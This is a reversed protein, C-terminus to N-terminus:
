LALCGERAPSGLLLNVAQFELGLSELLVVFAIQFWRRMTSRLKEFALPRAHLVDRCRGSDVLCVRATFPAFGKVEVMETSAPVEFLM